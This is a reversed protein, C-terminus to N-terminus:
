EAAGRSFRRIEWRAITVDLKTVAGQIRAREFVNMRLDAHYTRHVSPLTTNKSLEDESVVRSYTPHRCM